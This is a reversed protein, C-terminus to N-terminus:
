RATAPRTRFNHLRRGIEAGVVYMGIWFVLALLQATVVQATIDGPSVRMGQSVLKNGWLFGLAIINLFAGCGAAWRYLHTVGYEEGMMTGLMIGGALMALPSVVFLELSDIQSVLSQYLQSSAVTPSNSTTVLEVWTRAPNDPIFWMIWVIVIAM